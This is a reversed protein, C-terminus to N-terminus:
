RKASFSISSLIVGAAVGANLSEANGFKPVTVKAKLLRLVESSIGHAENGIVILAKEPWHVNMIDTGGIATAGFTSFGSGEFLKLAEALNVNEFIPIHFISGVTARVVKPNYLEVCEKSLLVGAVGFWDCTRIISGLNGPESIQDLAVVVSKFRNRFKELMDDLKQSPQAVVAAIGQAHVTDAIQSLERESVEIKEKSIKKASSFISSYKGDNQAKKTFLLIEFSHIAPVAEEITRWGEILFKGEKERIKKQSLSRLYQLTSRSIM